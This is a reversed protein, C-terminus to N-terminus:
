TCSLFKGIELGNTNLPNLLTTEIIELGYKFLSKAKRGHKLIRIEKINENTFGGVVYAWAFALMVISFLKEIRELDTLHTQEINFGSTKLASFATEIQWREKYIEQANEPKNFSIIIQLEPVKAKNKV